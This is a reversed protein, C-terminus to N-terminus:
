PCVSQSLLELEVFYCSSSDIDLARSASSLALLVQPALSQETRLQDPQLFVASNRGCSFASRSASSSSRPCISTECDSQVHARTCLLM